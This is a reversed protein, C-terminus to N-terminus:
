RLNWGLPMCVFKFMDSLMVDSLWSFQQKLVAGSFWVSTHIVMFIGLCLIITQWHTNNRILMMKYICKPFFFVQSYIFSSLYLGWFVRASPIVSTVSSVSKIGWWSCDGKKIYYICIAIFVYSRENLAAPRKISVGWLRRFGSVTSAIRNKFFM